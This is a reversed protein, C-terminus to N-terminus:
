RWVLVTEFKHEISTRTSIGAIGDDIVISVYPRAIFYVAVFVITIILKRM